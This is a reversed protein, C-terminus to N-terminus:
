WKQSTLGKANLEQLNALIFRITSQTIMLGFFAQELTALTSGASSHSGMTSTYGYISRLMWGDDKRDKDNNDTILGLRALEMVSPTFDGNKTLSELALRCESLCGDFDNKTFKEKAEKLHDLTKEPANTEIFDRVQEVEKQFTEGTLPVLMFKGGEFELTYDYKKLLSDIRDVDVRHTEVLYSIFEYFNSEENRIYYVIDQVARQLSFPIEEGNASDYEISFRMKMSRIDAWGDHQDRLHDLLINCLVDIDSDTLKIKHEAMLDM